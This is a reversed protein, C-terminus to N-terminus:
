TTYDKCQFFINLVRRLVEFPGDSSTVRRLQPYPSSGEWGWRRSTWTKRVFISDTTEGITNEPLNATPTYQSYQTEFSCNRFPVPHTVTPADSFTRDSLAASTHQLYLYVYPYCSTPAKKKTNRNLFGFFFLLHDPRLRCIQKQM